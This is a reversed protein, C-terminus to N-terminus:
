GGTAASPPSVMRRRARPASVSTAFRAAQADRLPPPRRLYRRSERALMARRVSRWSAYGCVCSLNRLPEIWVGCSGVQRTLTHCRYYQQLAYHPPNRVALAKTTAPRPTSDAAARVGYTRRIGPPTWGM